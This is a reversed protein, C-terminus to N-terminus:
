TTRVTTVRPAARRDFQLTAKTLAQQLRIPDIPKTLYDSMGAALCKARDTALAHATLAIVPITAGPGASQRLRRTAEYGDMEPMQCDMLIVDFEGSSLARLAEIGTAAAQVHAGLRELLRTALKTNVVNDEALLVRLGPFLPSTAGRDAAAPAVSVARSLEQLAKVLVSTKAPKTIVRDVLKLDSDAGAHSLSTLLILPSPPANSARIAAALWAGDHDSLERELIVALPPRDAALMSLYQALGGEASAAAISTYGEAALQQGLSKRNGPHRMVLLVARDNRPVRDPKLAAAAQGLCVGLRFTSGEGLASSVDITGGM